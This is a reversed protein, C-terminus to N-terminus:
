RIPMYHLVFAIVIIILSLVFLMSRMRYKPLAADISSIHDLDYLENANELIEDKLLYDVSM